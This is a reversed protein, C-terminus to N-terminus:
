DRRRRPPKSPAPAPNRAREVRAHLVERMEPHVDSLYQDVWALDVDTDTVIRAFDGEHRPQNSYILMLLLHELTAVPAEIGFVRARPAEAIITSEPESWSVLIDVEGKGRPRTLVYMPEPDEDLKVPTLSRFGVAGLARLADHANEALVVVDLDQTHRPLGRVALATAGVVAYPIEAQNLCDIAKRALTALGTRVGTRVDLDVVEAAPHSSVFPISM